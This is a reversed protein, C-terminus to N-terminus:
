PTFEPASDSNWIGLVKQEKSSAGGIATNGPECLLLCTSIVPLLDRGGRGAGGKGNRGKKIGGRGM